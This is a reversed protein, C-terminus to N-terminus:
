IKIGNGAFIVLVSIFAEECLKNSVKWIHTFASRLPKLVSNPGFCRDEM